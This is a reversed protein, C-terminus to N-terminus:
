GNTAGLNQSRLEQLELLEEESLPQDSVTPEASLKSRIITDIMKIQAVRAEAFTSRTPILDTLIKQDGETFTGEGAGRFVDKMLPLMMAIAGDAIQANSTLGATLGLFPGTITNDLTKTLNSMAGTYVDLARKNSRNKGIKDVELKAQGTAMIVASEVEPKLKLQATLKGTEKASALVSEVDAITPATGTKAITQIASGVAREDLGAKVRKARTQDEPSFDKILNDFTQQEASLQGGRPQIIKQRVGSDVVNNISQNLAEFKGAQALQIAADTDRPDGKNDIITQRNEMLGQLKQDDPLAQIRLASRVFDLNKQDNDRMDIDQELARQKTQNFQMNQEGARLNQEGARFNQEANAVNQQAAAIELPRLQTDQRFQLGRNFAGPIDALTFQAM